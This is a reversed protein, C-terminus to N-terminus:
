NIYRHNTLLSWVYSCYLCFLIVQLLLLSCCSGLNYKIYLLGNDQLLILEHSCVFRSVTARRFFFAVLWLCKVGQYLGCIHAKLYLVWLNSLFHCRALKSSRWKAQIFLQEILFFLTKTFSPCRVMHLFSSFPFRGPQWGQVWASLSNSSQQAIAKAKVLSSKM